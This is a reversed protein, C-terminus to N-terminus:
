AKENNGTSCISGYLELLKEGVSHKPESGDAWLKVSELRTGLLLAIKYHSYGKAKMQQLM